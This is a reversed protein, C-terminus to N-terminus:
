ELEMGLKLADLDIECEGNYIYLGKKGTLPYDEAHYFEKSLDYVILMNLKVDIIWYERVGLKHYTRVKFTEDRLKTSPSIVELVFDPGGFIGKKKLKSKDCLIMFDPMLRTKNDETSYVHQGDVFPICDGNHEKIYKQVQYGFETKAYNHPTSAVAGKDYIYGEILEYKMDDPTNELDEVTYEGQVKISTKYDLVAERVLLNLNQPNESGYMLEDRKDGFYDELISLTGERPHKTDGSFIKTLTGVPIKTIESIRAVSYGFEEKIRLMEQVTM